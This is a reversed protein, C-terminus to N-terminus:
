SFRPERHVKIRHRDPDLCKFATYPEDNREVITIGDVEIREMLARLDAQAAAKFGVHLFAPSPGRASCQTCRLTLGDANRIIVLGTRTSRPAPQAFGFYASYFQQSRREDRVPLAPHNLHM